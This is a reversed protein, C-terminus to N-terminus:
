SPYVKLYPLKITEGSPLTLKADGEIEAGSLEDREKVNNTMGTDSRLREISINPLYPQVRGPLVTDIVLKLVPLRRTLLTNTSYQTVISKCSM